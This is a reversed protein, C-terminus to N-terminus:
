NDFPDFIYKVVKRLHNMRIAMRHTPHRASILTMALCIYKPIGM